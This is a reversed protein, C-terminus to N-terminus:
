CPFVCQVGGVPILDDSHGLGGEPLNMKFLIASTLGNDQYWLDAYIETANAQHLDGPLHNCTDQVAAQFQHNLVMVGQM